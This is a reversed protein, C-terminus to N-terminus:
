LADACREAINGRTATLALYRVAVGEYEGIAHDLYADDEQAVAKLAEGIWYDLLDNVENIEANEDFRCEASEEIRDAVRTLNLIAASYGLFAFVMGILAAYLVKQWIGPKYEFVLEDHDQDDPM